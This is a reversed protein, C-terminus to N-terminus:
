AFRVFRERAGTRTLDSTKVESPRVLWGVGEWSVDLTQQGQQSELLDALVKPNGNDSIQQGVQQEFQPCPAAKWQLRIGPAVWSMEGLAGASELLFVHQGAGNITMNVQELGVKLGRRGLKRLVMCESDSPSLTLRAMYAWRALLVLVYGMSGIFVFSIVYLWILDRLGYSGLIDPQYLSYLGIVVGSIFIAFMWFEPTNPEVFFEAPDHKSKLGLLNKRWYLRIASLILFGPLFLLTPLGLLILLHSEGLVGVTITQSVVLSRAQEHNPAGWKFTIVFVLLHKGSQVRERARVKYTAVRTERAPLLVPVVPAPKDKSTLFDPWVPRVTANIPVNKKNSLILHVLAPTQENLSELTTKVEVGVVQDANVLDPAKIALSTLAIHSTPPDKANAQWQYDIQIPLPGSTLEGETQSLILVWSAVGGSPITSQAPGTVSVRVSPPSLLRLQAERVVEKSRNRLIVLVQQDDGGDVFQVSPPYVEVEVKPAEAENKPTEARVPGMLFLPVLFIWGFLRIPM